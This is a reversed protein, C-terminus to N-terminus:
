NFNTVSVDGTKRDVIAWIGNDGQGDTSEGDTALARIAVAFAKEYTVM